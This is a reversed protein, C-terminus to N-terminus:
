GVRMKRNPDRKSTRCGWLALSAAHIPDANDGGFGWGGSIPRKGSTVASDSLAEQYKYWTVTQEGIENVLQSAAAVVDKGSPKIISNKMVWTGSIKEILFEVGNRGDIVVCSATKYRANLWDALWQTGRSTDRIEILSIRAPQDVPCVAGCLTVQSGDASFKVGYATKGEPKLGESSCEMWKDRNIAFDVYDEDSSWWGLRERCFGDKSMSEFENLVTTEAIRYGFAPNTEAVLDIVTDATLNIDDLKEAVVAWELWWNGKSAGQHAKKHMRRFVTGNGVPPPPTGIMIIQPLSSEDSADAAAAVVPLMAEQQEDTLEQAEDIIIVSYTGGRAGSNTRTAFEICGGKQIVGDSDIWDKFYIGEYGRSRSIEKVSEAFQPYREPNDYIELLARFMKRTTAGNHASYLVDKHEFDAAYAAYFRAGHSKGNQRPKCLSITTAAPSGDENKAAMIVLEYRQSGFFTVNCEEEFMDAVLEGNSYSYQGVTSFTPTQRGFRKSAM